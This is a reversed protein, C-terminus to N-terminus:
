RITVDVGLHRELAASLDATEATCPGDPCLSVTLEDGRLELEVDVKGHAGLALSMRVTHGDRGGRGIRGVSFSTVMRDAMAAIEAQAHAASGASPPADIPALPAPPAMLVAPGARFAVGVTEHRDDDSQFDPRGKSRPAYEGVDISV